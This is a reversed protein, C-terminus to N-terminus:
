KPEFILFVATSDGINLVQHGEVGDSYFHSGSLVQVERSGTEDEIQFRSGSLTYGFHAPHYHKEHGVGPAFSCKLIRMKKNEEVIECVAQNKWGAQLPDPLESSNTCNYLFGVIFLLVIIKYKSM